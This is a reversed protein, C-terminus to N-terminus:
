DLPAYFDVGLGNPDVVTAYRQGWFADFPPLHGTHGADTLRTYMADVAAPGACLFALATRQGGTGVSFDPDFAAITETTDFMIKFGGAVTSEAHPADDADAPFELGCARYFALTAAMDEVVISLANLTPVPSTMRGVSVARRSATMFM